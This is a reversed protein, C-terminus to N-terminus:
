EMEYLATLGHAHIWAMQGGRAFGMSLKGQAPLIQPNKRRGVVGRRHAPPYGAGPCDARPSRGPQDGAYSIRLGVHSDGFAGFQMDQRLDHLAALVGDLEADM